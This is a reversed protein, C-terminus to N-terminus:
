IKDYITGDVNFDLQVAAALGRYMFDRIGGNEDWCGFDIYGDGKGKSLWGTVCGVSTRAMGLDSLVDNLLVYGYADLRENAQAQVARLFMMNYEPNPSWNKSTENSFSPTYPGGGHTSDGAEKVKVIEQGTETDIVVERESVGFYLERDKEEGFEEVVRERYAKFGKELMAMGATLGAIRNNQINHAGTLAAVSVLGLFAAPGYLKGLRASARVYAAIRTKQREEDTSLGAEHVQDVKSLNTDLEDLIPEVKLTARCALVVTAGMGVVGGALLLTPSHKKVTLIQRGMKRTIANSVSKFNM